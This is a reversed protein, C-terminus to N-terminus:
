KSYVIKKIAIFKIIKDEKYPLIWIVNSILLCLKALQELQVDNGEWDKVTFSYFDECIVNTIGILFIWIFLM